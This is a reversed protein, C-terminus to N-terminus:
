KFRDKRYILEDFISLYNQYHEKDIIGDEVLKRVICKPENIHNCDLFFCNEEINQFFPFYLKLEEKFINLELSSFGPTDAIYGNEYKFIKVEKTQHKGRNLAKSYEGISRNIHPAIFNVLSSKGVGTQGTFAITQNKIYEKIKEIGQGTKSSFPIVDIGINRYQEIINNLKDDDNLLDIKSLIVMPKIHNLNLLTIFKDLLYSSYEPEKMSMVIIGLDINSISPRYLINKRPKIESIQDNIVDVEDGVCPKIKQHRFIGRPVIKCIEGNALAVEYVGAVVSLIKGEM